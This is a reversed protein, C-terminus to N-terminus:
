HKKSYKDGYFKLKKLIDDVRRKDKLKCKGSKINHLSTTLNSYTLRNGQKTITNRHKSMVVCWNGNMIYKEVLLRHFFYALLATGCKWEFSWSRGTSGTMFDLLRFSNVDKSIFGVRKLARCLCSLQESSLTCGFSHEPFIPAYNGDIYILSDLYQYAWRATLKIELLYFLKREDSYSWFEKAVKDYENLHFKVGGRKSQDLLNDILRYEIPTFFMQTPSCGKYLTYLESGLKSLYDFKEQYSLYKVDGKANLAKQWIENARKNARVGKRFAVIYRYITFRHTIFAVVETGEAQFFIQKETM